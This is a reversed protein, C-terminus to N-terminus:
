SYFAVIGAGLAHAADFWGRLEQWAFAVDEDLDDGVVTALQRAIVAGAEPKITSVIPILNSPPLPFPPAGGTLMRTQLADVSARRLEADLLRHLQRSGADVVVRTALPSGLEQCLLWVARRYQAAHEGQATPAGSALEELARGLTPAIPDRDTLRSHAAAWEEARKEVLSRVLLESAARLKRFGDPDREPWRVKVLRLYARRIEEPSAHDDLGLEAMADDLDM